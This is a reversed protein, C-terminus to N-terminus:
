EFSLSCKGLMLPLQLLICCCCRVVVVVSWILVVVPMTPIGSATVLAVQMFACGRCAKVCTANTRIQNITTSLLGGQYKVACVVQVSTRNGHTTARNCRPSHHHHDNLTMALQFVKSHTEWSTCQGYMPPVNGRRTSTEQRGSYPSLLCLTVNGQFTCKDVNVVRWDRKHKRHCNPLVADELVGM